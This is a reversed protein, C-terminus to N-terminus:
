RRRRGAAPDGRGRGLRHLQRGRGDGAEPRSLRVAEELGAVRSPVRRAQRDHRERVERRWERESSGDLGGRVQLGSSRRGRRVAGAARREDPRERGRQVPLAAVSRLRQGDLIGPDAYVCRNPTRGNQAAVADRLGADSEAFFAACHEVLTQKVAATVGLASLPEALGLAMLLATIELVSSDLTVIPFYGPVVFKANPFMGAATPLLFNMRDTISDRTLERISATSAFPNLINVVGIDNIGGNLLVLDIDAPTIGRTVLTALARSLQGHISPYSAPVEGGFIGAADQVSDPLIVAGSHAFSQFTVGRGPLNADVWNKVLTGFKLGDTLGQGWMISDGFALMNFPRGVARLVDRSGARSRGLLDAVDHLGGLTLSGVAAAALSSARGLFARRDVPPQTM